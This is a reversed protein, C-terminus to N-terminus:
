NKQDSNYFYNNYKSRYWVATMVITVIAFFGTIAVSYPNPDYGKYTGSTLAATIVVIAVMSLIFAKIGGENKREPEKKRREEMTTNLKEENIESSM